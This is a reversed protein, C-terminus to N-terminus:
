ALHARAPVRLQLNVRPSEKAPRALRVSLLGETHEVVPPTTSAQGNDTVVAVSVYSEPWVEVVVGGRFNEVRVNGNAPLEFKLGAVSQLRQAPCLALAFALVAGLCVLKNLISTPFFKSSARHLM